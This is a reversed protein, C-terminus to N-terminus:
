RRGQDFLGTLEASSLARNYVRVEDVQGALEDVIGGEDDLYGGITMPTSPMNIAGWTWDNCIEKGNVYLRAVWGNYTAAVHYWRGLEARHEHGAYCVGMRGTDLAIQWKFQLGHFGLFLTPYGHAVLATNHSGTRFAWASVTIAHATGRLSPSIPVSVVADNGGNLHLAHGKIGHGPQGAILIGHNQNGSSDLTRQGASEEFRWWGVLHEEPPDTCSALLLLLLAPAIRIM